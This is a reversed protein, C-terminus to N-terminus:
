KETKRIWVGKKNKTAMKKIVSWAVRFSRTENKYQKYANNFVRMFVSQLESSLVKKISPPLDKITQYPAGELHSSMDYEKKEVEDIKDESIPNGNEDVDEPKEGPFDIGQDERNDVIPPYLELPLGEKTEKKKRYVETKFDVEAVLEIATQDSLRGARWLRQVQTKFEDTAFAKVASHSIYFNASDSLYKRHDSKNKESIQYILQFLIQKKFDNVGSRIEEIFAKPNLISERRSTSVAEAIDVFGLGSLIARETTATLIPDFISKLDPILHTIEEDFQTVRMPTKKDATSKELTEILSQLRDKVTTLEEDSYVKTQSTALAETGKKVLFLYPIVQELIEIQKDKLDEIIKWNKYIGRKILFVPPYEDFWRGYPRTMITSKDLSDEKDRGLYYKYNILKNKEEKKNVPDAYISGGDVFFAKTPLLIKDIPSWETLKLVPFSSSKWRETFYEKALANIGIPVKGAYGINITELWKNLTSNLADNETEITWDVMASEVMFDTLSDVLGSTDSKLMSNVVSVQDHFETPVVVKRLLLGLMTNMLLSSSESM